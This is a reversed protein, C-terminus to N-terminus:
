RGENRGGERGEKEKTKPNQARGGPGYVSAARGGMDESRGDRGGARGGERGGERGWDEVVLRLSDVEFREEDRSRSQVLLRLDDLGHLLIVEELL